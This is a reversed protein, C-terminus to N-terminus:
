RRVLDGLVDCNYVAANQGKYGAWRLSPKSCYTGGFRRHINLQTCPTVGWLVFKLSMTTFVEFGVNM